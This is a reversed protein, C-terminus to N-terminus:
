HSHHPNLSQSICCVLSFKKSPLVTVFPYLANPTSTLWDLNVVTDGGVPKPFVEANGQLVNKATDLGGITLVSGNALIASTPYWRPRQQFTPSALYMIMLTSRVQLSLIQYNEEWDNTGNVGPQGDPTYLRVGSLAVGSYGGISIQRGAKDPLVVNSGCFLDTKVHMERYALKNSIV